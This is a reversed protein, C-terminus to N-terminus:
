INVQKFSSVTEESYSRLSRLVVHGFRNRKEPIPVNDKDVLIFNFMITGKSVLRLYSGSEALYVKGVELNM